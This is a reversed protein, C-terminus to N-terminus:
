RRVVGGVELRNNLKYQADAGVVWFKKGAQDVEYTIRISQPNFGPDFTAIPAKLLLTGTLPELEYDVFRQLQTVLIILSPQNRDRVLVEVRESNEVLNPTSLMFPGSTGDAKIEDVVQTTSDSSAFGNVM